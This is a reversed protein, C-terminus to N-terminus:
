QVAKKKKGSSVKCMRKSFSYKGGSVLAVALNAACTTSDGEGHIMAYGHKGAPGAVIWGLMM